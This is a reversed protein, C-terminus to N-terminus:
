QLQILIDLSRSDIDYETAQKFYNGIIQSTTSLPVLTDSIGQEAFGGRINDDAYNTYARWGLVEEQDIDSVINNRLLFEQYTYDSATGSIPTAGTVELKYVNSTGMLIDDEFVQWTYNEEVLAIVPINVDLDTNLSSMPFDIAYNINGWTRTGGLHPHSLTASLKVLGGSSSLVEVFSGENFDQLNEALVEGVILGNNSITGGFFGRDLGFGLSDGNRGIAQSQPFDSDTKESTFLRLGFEDDIINVISRSSLVLHRYENESHFGGDRYNMDFKLIFLWTGTLNESDVNNASYSNIDFIDQHDGDVKSDSSGGCSTLALALFTIVTVQLLPKM